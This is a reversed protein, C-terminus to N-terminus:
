IYKANDVTLSVDFEISTGQAVDNPIYAFFCSASEDSEFVVATEGKGSVFNSSSLTLNLSNSANARRFGFDVRQDSSVEFNDITFVVNKGSPIAFWEPLNNLVGVTSVEGRLHDKINLARTNFGKTADIKVHNGKTVTFTVYPDNASIAVEGNTLPYQGEAIYETGDVTFGIDFEIVSGAPVPSSFFMFVCSLNKDVTETKTVSFGNTHTGAGSGYSASTSANANRFNVEFSINGDNVVNEIYFTAEKNAPVIFWSPLNDIVVSPMGNSFKGTTLNLYYSASAEKNFVLKVHNDNTITMISPEGTDYFVGDALPYLAAEKTVMVNFTTTKGGYHVTITSTGEALTGSLTYETATRTTGDDMHATVVLDAKLDDLSATDYVALRQTYVASISVLNAPPYLAIELADYYTQGNEDVYAVKELLALLAQKAEDSLGSGSPIVPLNDLAEYDYKETTGDKLEFGKISM